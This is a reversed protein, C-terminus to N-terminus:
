SDSRRATPGYIADELDIGDLEGIDMDTGTFMWNYGEAYTRGDVGSGQLGTLMDTAWWVDHNVGWLYEYGDNM